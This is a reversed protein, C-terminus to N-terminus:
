LSVEVNPITFFHRLVLSHLQRIGYELCSMYICQSVAAALIKARRTGHAVPEYKLKASNSSKTSNSSNSFPSPIGFRGCGGVENEPTDPSPTMCAMGVKNNDTNHRNTILYKVDRHFGKEVTAGRQILKHEIAELSKHGPLDLFFVKGRLPRLDRSTLQDSRKRGGNGNTSQNALFFIM